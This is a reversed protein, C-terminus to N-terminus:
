QANPIEMRRAIIESELQHRDADRQRRIERDADDIASLLAGFCPTDDVAWARNFSAGLCRLDGETLLGVAVIRDNALAM